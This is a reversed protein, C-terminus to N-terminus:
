SSEVPAWRWQCVWKRRSLLSTVFKKESCVRNSLHTSITLNKRPNTAGLGNYLSFCKSAVALPRLVTQSLIQTRFDSFIVIRSPQSQNKVNTPAVLTKSRNCLIGSM